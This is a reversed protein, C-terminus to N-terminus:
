SPKDWYAKGTHIQKLQDKIEDIDKQIKQLLPWFPHNKANFDQESPWIFNLDYYLYALFVFGGMWFLLKKSLVLGFIAYDGEMSWGGVVFAIYFTAAAQLLASDARLRNITFKVAGKFSKGSVKLKSM